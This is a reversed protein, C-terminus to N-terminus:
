HGSPRTLIYTGAAVLCVAQVGILWPPLGSLVSILLTAGMMVLAIAKFRPAIAGYTRWERIVPGFFRHRELAAALRPSGKAFCFAALIVLPTTPLLPLIAGVAGLALSIAGLAIWVQKRIFQM